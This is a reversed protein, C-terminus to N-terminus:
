SSRSCSTERQTLEKVAMEPRLPDDHVKISPTLLAPTTNPLPRILIFRPWAIILGTNPLVTTQDGGTTDARVLADNGAVKGFDFDQVASAFLVSSSYTHRGILLYTAGSFHLPNNLDPQILTDLPGSAVDGVAYGPQPHGKIVRKKYRSAWRYPKNAIYKLIGTMWMDDDGGGNARIDIILTKVGAQQIEGFVHHTFDYFRPKDSWDFTNITLLATHCGSLKFSFADEFTETRSLVQPMTNSPMVKINRDQENQEVTLKYVTPSGDMKWYYFWFRDSLLGARFGPTDGHVRALMSTSLQTAEVGNVSLIHAGILPTAGGGLKARIRMKGDPAVSVEFPFFTGGKELHATAMKTWHRFTVVMHGDAMIPNLTSLARWAGDRTMPRDFAHHIERLRQSLANMDASHSVDPHEHYIVHEVVALDAQLQKATFKQQSQASAPTAALLVASFILLSASVCYGIIRFTNRALSFPTKPM